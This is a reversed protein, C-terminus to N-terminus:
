AIGFGMELVGPDERRGNRASKTSQLLAKQM